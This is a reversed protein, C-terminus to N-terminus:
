PQEGAQDDLSLHKNTCRYISNEIDIAKAWRLKHMMRAEPTTCKELSANFREELSVLQDDLVRKDAYYLLDEESPYAKGDITVGLEPHLEATEHEAILDALLEYGDSRLQEAGASPLDRRTKAFDHLMAAAYLLERDYVAQEPDVEDAIDSLVAAVKRMHRRVRDPVEYLDLVENIRYDGPAAAPHGGMYDVTYDVAKGVLATRLKTVSAYPLQLDMLRDSDIAGITAMAARIIGAHAVIYYIADREHEEEQRTLQDLFGVLRKGAQEFTEADPLQYDWMHEGREAYEQPYKKKIVDFDLNEWSGMYIERLEECVYIQDKRLPTLDMMRRATRQCRQMPSSYLRFPADERIVKRAMWMGLRKAQKRGRVSLPVDTTGICRKRGIDIDGHRILYITKRNRNMDTIM